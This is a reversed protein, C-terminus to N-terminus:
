AARAGDLSSFLYADELTPEVPRAGELDTAHGVYRVHVGDARRVM